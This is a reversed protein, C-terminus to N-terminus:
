CPEFTSREMPMRETWTSPSWTIEKVHAAWFLSAVWTRRRCVLSLSGEEEPVDDPTDEEEDRGALEGEIDDIDEETAEMEEGMGRVGPGDDDEEEEAVDKPPPPGPPSERTELPIARVKSM